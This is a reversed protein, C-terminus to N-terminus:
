VMNAIETKDTIVKEKIVGYKKLQTQFEFWKRRELIV